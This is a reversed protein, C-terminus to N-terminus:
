RDVLYGAIAVEHNGFFGVMPGMTITSAIVRLPGDLYMKMAQTGTYRAVLNDAYTRTTAVAHAKAGFLANTSSGDNGGIVLSFLSASPATSIQWSVSEVVLRKGDPVEYLLCNTSLPVQAACSTMVPVLPTPAVAVPVPRNAPNVIMADVPKLVGQAHSPLSTALAALGMATAALLMLARAHM